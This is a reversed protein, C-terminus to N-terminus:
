AGLHLQRADKLVFYLSVNRPIQRMYVEPPSMQRLYVEPPSMQRLSALLDDPDHCDVVANCVLDVEFAEIIEEDECLELVVKCECNHWPWVFRLTSANSYDLQEAYDLSEVPDLAHGLAGSYNHRYLMNGWNDGVKQPNRIVLEAPGTHKCNLWLDSCTYPLLQVGFYFRREFGRGPQLDYFRSGGTPHLLEKLSTVSKLSLDM